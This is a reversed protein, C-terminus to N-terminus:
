ALVDGLILSQRPMESPPRCTPYDSRAHAGRSECRRLAAEAVFCGMLAADDHPTLPRLKDLLASLGEQNRNIGAYQWMLAGVDPLPKQLPQQLPVSPTSAAHPTGQGPSQAALPHQNIDGAAWAGTVFAELLSNSALRNAGHLGTCAAEGVAYLGPVTSRCAGDVMIGGMHYHMAPRVPIPDQEPNVGHELCRAFITPFLESFRGGPLRRADLFVRHGAALHQALARSVVDRPALEETFRQGTEDILKAGAGRVAESVLPRQGPTGTDLVTPHFQTFEMDAFAAGARAALALGGGKQGEPVTTANYLGGLGGTAMIIHATPLIFTGEPLAIELGAVHGHQTIIRQAQAPALVHISPKALAQRVLAQTMLRGSADGGAFLVRPRSHAAELHLALAGKDDRAFPVGWALLQRVAEPGATTMRRVVAEDCLGAGAALTDQAHQAPSDGPGVAASLGGQALASSGGMGLPANNILVCPGKLHLATSLGAVGAGVIVPLGALGDLGAM